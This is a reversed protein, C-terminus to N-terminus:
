RPSFCRLCLPSSNREHCGSVWSVLFWSRALEMEAALSCPWYVSCTRLLFFAPCRTGRQVIPVSAALWASRPAVLRSRAWRAVQAPIPTLELNAYIIFFRMGERPLLAPPAHVWRPQQASSSWLAGHQIRRCQPHLYSFSEVVKQVSENIMTHM